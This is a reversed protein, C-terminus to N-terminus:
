FTDPAEVAIQAIFFLYRHTVRDLCAAFQAAGLWQGFVEFVLLDLPKKIFNFATTVASHEHQHQAASQPHLFNGIQTQSGDVPTTAFKVHEVAFSLLVTNDIDAM